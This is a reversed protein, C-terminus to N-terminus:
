GTTEKEEALRTAEIQESKSPPRSRIEAAVDPTIVRTGVLYGTMAGTLGTIIATFEQPVQNHTIVIATICVILVALLIIAGIVSLKATNGNIVPASNTM